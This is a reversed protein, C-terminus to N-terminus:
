YSTTHYPLRTMTRCPIANHPMIYCHCPTSPPATLHPPNAGTVDDGADYKKRMDEDSLVEYAQPIILILPPYPLGDWGMGGWGM